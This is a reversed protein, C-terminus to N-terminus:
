ELQHFVPTVEEPRGSRRAGEEALLHDGRRLPVDDPAGPQQLVQLEERHLERAGPLGQPRSRLAPDGRVHTAGGPAMRSSRRGPLRPHCLAPIRRFAPDPEIGARSRGSDRSRGPADRGAGPGPRGPRALCTPAQIMPRSTEDFGVWGWFQRYAIRRAKTLQGPLRPLTEQRKMQAAVVDRAVQMLGKHPRVPLLKRRKRLENIEKYVRNVEVRPDVQRIARRFCETIFLTGGSAVIGVGMRDANRSLINARHLPSQMFGEHAEEPSSAQAINEATASSALGAADIRDAARGTTPSVHAFFRNAAMDRSHSRAVAALEEEFLLTPLGQATREKNTLEWLKREFQLVELETARGITPLMALLCVVVAGSTRTMARSVM